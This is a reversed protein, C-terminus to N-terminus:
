KFSLLEVDFILVRNAGIGEPGNEGYALESPIYLIWNAGPKMLQLAETWGPIVRNVPFSAPEGRQVSSDFVKGNTFTGTYNVTVVSTDVPSSGTGEKVVKYQLGSPLNVVGEKKANEDLFKRGEQLNIFAKKENLKALCANVLTNAQELTIVTQKGTNIDNLGNLVMKDNFEEIGAQRISTGLLIGLSYSVSDIESNLINKQGVVPLILLGSLFVSFLLKM